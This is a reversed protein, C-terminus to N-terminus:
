GSTKWQREEQRNRLKRELDQYDYERQQFNSFGSNQLGNREAKYDEDYAGELLKQVANRNIFSDFSIKGKKRLWQSAEAKRIAKLVGDMGFMGICIRTEDYRRTMPIITEIKLAHPIANWADTITQLEPEAPEPAPTITNLNNIVGGINNNINEERSQTNSGDNKSNNNVNVSNNNVNVRKKGDNVLLYEKKLTVNERRAVANLYRKQIGSSTLIQYEEFLEKSFIDRRICAQVVEKILNKNGGATGCNRLAFLLLMDENWSMYYGKGGYIEMFLLVVVAFGALGFEAQILKIKEDMHCDLEFYDLGEKIPRPM